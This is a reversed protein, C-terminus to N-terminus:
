CGHGGRGSGMGVEQIHAVIGAQTEIDLQKIREIFEEKRECQPPYIFSPFCKDLNPFGLYHGCGCCGPTRTRLGLSPVFSKQGGLPSEAESAWTQDWVLMEECAFSRVHGLALAPVGTPLRKQKTARPIPGPTKYVGALRETVSGPM